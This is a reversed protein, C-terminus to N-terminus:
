TTPAIHPKKRKVFKHIINKYVTYEELFNSLALIHDVSAYLSYIAWQLFFDLKTNTLKRWYFAFHKANKYVWIFLSKIEIWYACKVKINAFAFCRPQTLICHAIRVVLM